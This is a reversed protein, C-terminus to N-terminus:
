EDDLDPQPVDFYEIKQGGAFNENVQKIAENFFETTKVKDIEFENLRSNIERLFQEFVAPDMPNQENNDAM